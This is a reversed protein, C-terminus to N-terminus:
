VLLESGEIFCNEFIYFHVLLYSEDNSTVLHGNKLYQGGYSLEMLSM